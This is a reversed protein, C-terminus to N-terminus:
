TKAGKKDKYIKPLLLVIFIGVAVCIIEIISILRISNVAAIMENLGSQVKATVQNTFLPVFVAVGLPAAM